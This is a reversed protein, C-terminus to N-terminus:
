VSEILRVSGDRAIYFHSDRWQVRRTVFSWGWLGLSLLDRLPLLLAQGLSSSPRRTSLHLLLRAVTTTALMGIVTVSCEALVSGLLAVPLSFTIFLFRYGVPSLARITRLWRLEHRVLQCFTIESVSTEVVVDALVTRLGARRTLQGLRYDDALQNVIAAFGGIRLLVERRIAITAGSAFARSGSLAAVRVSPMFWDNIFLSGLLSWLGARPHGRYACTVIGVGKDALRNVVKALYDDRVCVDSDSLVLVEYRALSMMNILNSVKRNSGHQRCDISITIDLNPWECQLRKVIAVAPDTVDAVGFVIQFQPYQQGCFSRLCGYTEPEAGCLPKLVTVPPTHAPSDGSSRIPKRATLWAIISYIMTLAVLVSGCRTLWLNAIVIGEPRCPGDTLLRLLRAQSGFTPQGRLFRRLSYSGM